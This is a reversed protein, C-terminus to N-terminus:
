LVKVFYDSGDVLAASGDYGVPDTSTNNKKETEMITAILYELGNAGIYEYYYNGAGICGGPDTLATPVTRNPSPDLPPTAGKFYDKFVNGTDDPDRFVGTASGDVCGSYTPYVGYDSNYTELATIINNINGERAADRGRSLADRITPYLAAALVGIIAIVILLEILTFAKKKM